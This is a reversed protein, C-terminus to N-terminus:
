PFTRNNARGHSFQCKELRKGWGSYSLTGRRLHGIPAPLTPPIPSEIPYDEHDWRGASAPREGQDPCVDPQPRGHTRSPEDSRGAAFRPSPRNLVFRAQGGKATLLSVSGCPSFNSRADSAADGDSEGQVNSMGQQINQPETERSTRHGCRRPEMQTGGALQRLGNATIQPSMRNPVGMPGARSAPGVRQRVPARSVRKLHSDDRPDVTLLYVTGCPSFHPSRDRVSRHPTATAKGKSMPCEKNSIRRNRKERPATGAHAHSWKRDWRGASAPREGQDPSVDPQPCGHTRSPEGSRGALRFPSQTSEPRITGTGREGLGVRPMRAICDRLQPMALRKGRPCQVNRTPYEATGNRALHPAGM